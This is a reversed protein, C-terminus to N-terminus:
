ITGSCTASSGSVNLVFDATGSPALTYVTYQGEPVAFTCTVSACARGSCSSDDTCIDWRTDLLIERTALATLDAECTPSTHSCAECLEVAISVQQPAPASCAGGMDQGPEAFAADTPCSDGGCGAAALALAAAVVANGIRM